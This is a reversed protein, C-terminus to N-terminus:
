ISEAPIDKDLFFKHIVEAVGDTNNSATVVDAAKQIAADGNGMAVGLGAWKIMEMDNESDGVAMIEDQRINCDNCLNELASQKSVGYFNIDFRHRGTRYVFVDPWGKMLAFLVELKELDREIVSAKLIPSRQRASAFTVFDSVPEVSIAYKQMRYNEDTLELWPHRVVNALPWSQNTENINEVFLTHYGYFQVYSRYTRILEAIRVAVTMPLENTKLSAGSVPDVIAAGNLAVLPFNMSLYKAHLWASAPFRGTAISVFCGSAVLARIASQVSSTVWNHSNLLTGDMDLVLLKYMEDEGRATKMVKNFDNKNVSFGLFALSL